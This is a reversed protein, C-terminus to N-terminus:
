SYQHHHGAGAFLGLVSEIKNDLEQWEAGAESGAVIGAGAFLDIHRRTVQASRIAVSFEAEDASLYGIAGAYWGREFHEHTSIFDLADGRPSGGVAPTPHLAKLILADTVEPNLTGSILKRLHQIYKLDVVDAVPKVQVSECLGTLQRKIYDQVLYNERRIKVDSRLASASGAHAVASAAKEITGALAETVLDCGRRRYLREPTCGLFCSDAHTQLLYPMTHPEVRRWQDLLAFEDLDGQVTFRSRRALVVKPTNALADPEILRDVLGCWQERSPQDIRSHLRPERLGGRSADQTAGHDVRGTSEKIPNETAGALSDDLGGETELARQQCETSASAALASFDLGTNASPQHLRLFKVLFSNQGRRILARIPLFFMEGCQEASESRISLPDPAAPQRGPFPVGGVLLPQFDTPACYQIFQQAATLSSFRMAAGVASIELERDRSQWYFRPFEDQGKLSQGKLWRLHNVSTKGLFEIDQRFGFLLADAKHTLPAQLLAIM